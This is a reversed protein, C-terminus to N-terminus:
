REYTPIFTIPRDATFAPKFLDTRVYGDMDRGVSVGLFYLVTPTVDVVSARRLVRTTAVSAGYALLFGDPAAEHTGSLEPDGIVREMVRKGFGLPEMGYASVVLLLDDAGLGAIARGIAEDLLRYHNELVPGYQRREDDTVDGFRTPVAYRLFYHGIPDLSQYRTLTVQTPRSSALAQGVRDYLRDMRGATDYRHPIPVASVREAGSQIISLTEDILEPPYLLHPDDLGSFTLALEAYRDSVVYGRVAPAPYTLPWNVVGSTIGVSSLIGWLTRSRVAASSLPQETLLGFRLVGNAFCFDPLLRIPDASGAPLYVNASRVGNKQPLKGTAVAAWVAEAATPHLTALHVVAGADLIRGFNALRGEAAATTVLELSGADIAIISVRPSRSEAPVDLAADVLRAELPPLTGRGRLALPAAVSAAAILVLSIAWLMRPGSRRVIGVLAFLVSAAALIAAGRAVALSAEPELVLAFTRLNSWMLVAGAAAAGAALWSLTGISIWGPSFIDRALLQRMVLIMYFIATLHAAYFLGFTGALPILRQPHIPLPPNLQLVLILVYCAALLAAVVSNSLM